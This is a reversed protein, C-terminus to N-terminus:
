AVAPRHVEEGAPVRLLGLEVRDHGVPGDVEFVAVAVGGPHVAARELQCADRLLGRIRRVSTDLTVRATLRGARQVFARHPEDAIEDRRRAGGLLLLREQVSLGLQVCEPDCGPLVGDDLWLREGGVERHGSPPL